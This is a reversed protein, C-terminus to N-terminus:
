IQHSTASTSSQVETPLFVYLDAIAFVKISSFRRYNSCCECIFPLAKTKFSSFVKKRLGFLSGSSRNGHYCIISGDYLPGAVFYTSKFLQVFFHFTGNGYCPFAPTGEDVIGALQCVQCQMVVTKGQLQITLLHHIIQM